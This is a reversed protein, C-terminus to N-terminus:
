LHALYLADDRAHGRGVPGAHTERPDDPLGREDIEVREHHEIAKMGVIRARVDGAKGIVRVAAEFRHGHHERPEHTVAVTAAVRAEDRAAARLHIVAPRPMMWESIGSCSAPRM